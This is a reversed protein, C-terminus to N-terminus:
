SPELRAEVYVTGGRRLAVELAACAAAVPLMAVAAIITMTRRGRGIPRTRAEPARLAQYLSPRGPLLGVLGELWGIVQQGPRLYSVYEVRLGNRELGAILGAATLHTLHRPLDLHLWRDGFARAQLSSNNPVAIAVVGGPVLVRAAERIAAGPRPLHELAHWLVVGAWGVEVKEIPEDRFRPDSGSRELGAGERGRRRLADLLVGDGAGVDLIPGSPTVHDLRTAILGRSRALLFDGGFRFRRGAGPRYWNGYADDLQEDTPWPDTTAAGCRRCRLRGPLRESAAAGALPADCWGCELPSAINSGAPSRPAWAEPTESKATM